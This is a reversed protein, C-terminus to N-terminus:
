PQVEPLQIGFTGPAATEVAEMVQVITSCAQILTNLHPQVPATVDLHYQALDALDDPDTLRATLAALQGLARRCNVYVGNAMTERPADRAALYANFKREDDITFNDFPM